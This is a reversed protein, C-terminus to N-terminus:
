AITGRRRRVVASKSRFFDATFEFFIQMPQGCSICNRDLQLDVGCDASIVAERIAEADLAHLSQVFPMLTKIEGQEGDVVAIHRAIRFFYEDNKDSFDAVAKEDGVRFLRLGLKRGSKPLTIWFPEKFDAEMTYIGLDAPLGIDIPLAKRCSQCTATFSYQPGYTVARLMVFLYVIDGVLYEDIPLKKRDEEIICDAVIEYMVRDRRANPSTLIKEERTTLPRIRVIGGPLRGGYLAGRSPLNVATVESTMVEVPGM